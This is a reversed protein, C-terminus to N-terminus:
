AAPQWPEMRLLTGGLQAFARQRCTFVIVQQTGAQDHLADFMREIRADDSYVLADDLIVPVAEGNRSLLRAFALRTLIALQERMGGSLVSVEEDLGERRVTRPLLTDEDFTVSADEFLLGLLPRLERLLPAFYHDRAQTRADDLATRLRTLVTVERALAAVKREAEALQERTEQWAEEIAGEARTQIRGDLAAAQERAQAIEARAAEAVSRLRRHRAELASVDPADRSLDAIRSTVASLDQQAAHAADALRGELAAREAEPGLSEALGSLSSALSAARREAEVLGEAAVELRAQASRVDERGKRVEAELILLRARVREPDESVEAGGQAKAELHGIQERLAAFGQPALLALRQRALRVDGELERWRAERLRAAAMDAVGLDELLARRRAEAKRAEELGDALTPFSLTLRGVGEIEVLTSGTLPREEQHDLPAGDIRVRGDAGAAYDMRLHPARAAAAAKLAALHAEVKELEALKGAPVAHNKFAAELGELQTRAAEAQRLADHASALAQRAARAALARELSTLLDRQAREQTEAAAVAAAARRAEEMAQRQRERARDRVEAAQTAEVRLQAHRSSTERFRALSGVAADRRAQVAAAESRAAKLAEAQAQAAALAAAADAVAEERARAPEAGDIQALRTRLTRRQDLAARLDAVEAAQQRELDLLRDRAKLAADYPGNARPRGTASTVLRALEAECAALAQTMRRGGTLAEVEGQVSTLVTERARKEAEDESKVRREMGTVGQRVWLLGAPGGAGDSILSAIFREAEDAQAILRGSDRERVQARKGAFFQKTLRFAGARTVIDAEVLPGGGSYPRLAQVAGAASTHAQFFLAHLADFCTSKGQENAACLVNVGAGMGEIQVGTGAFRRVNHLRLATLKM